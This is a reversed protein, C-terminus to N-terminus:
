IENCKLRCSLTCLIYLWLCSKRRPRSLSKLRMWVSIIVRRLVRLSKAMQGGFKNKWYIVSRKPTFVVKALINTYYCHNSYTIILVNSHRLYFNVPIFVTLLDFTSFHWFHFRLLTNRKRNSPLRASLDRCVAIERFLLLWPEPFHKLIPPVDAVLIVIRRELNQLVLILSCRELYWTCSTCSTSSTCLYVLYQLYM